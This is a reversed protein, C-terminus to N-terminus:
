SEYMLRHQSDPGPLLCTCGERGQLSSRSQVDAPSQGPGKSRALVTATRRTKAQM